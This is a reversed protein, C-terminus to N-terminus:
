LCFFRSGAEGWGCALGRTGIFLAEPVPTKKKLLIGTM